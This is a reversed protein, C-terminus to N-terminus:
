FCRGRINRKLEANWGHHCRQCTALHLPLSSRAGVEQPSLLHFFSMKTRILLFILAFNVSNCFDPSCLYITFQLVGSVEAHFNGLSSIEFIAYLLYCLCSAPDMM